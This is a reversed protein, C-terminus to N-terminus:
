GRALARVNHKEESAQKQGTIRDKIGIKFKYRNTWKLSNFYSVNAKYMVPIKGHSRLM